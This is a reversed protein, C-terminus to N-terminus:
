VTETEEATENANAIIEKIEKKSVPKEGSIAKELDSALEPDEQALVDNEVSLTNVLHKSVTTQNAKINEFSDRVNQHAQKSNGVLRSLGLILVAWASNALVFRGAKAMLPVEKAAKEMSESVVPMLKTNFDTKDLYEAFRKTAKVAKKAFDPYKDILKDSLKNVGKFTLSISGLLLGIGALASVVPQDKEFNNITKSKSSAFKEMLNVAGMALFGLGFLTMTAAGSLVRASLPGKTLIGSSISAVIPMSYLATNMVKKNNNQLKKNEKHANLHALVLLDHDNMNVFRMAEERHRVARSNNEDTRSTFKVSSVINSVADAQM